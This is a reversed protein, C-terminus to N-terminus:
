LRYDMRWERPPRTLVAMDNAFYFRLPCLAYLMAYFLSFINVFEPNSNFLTEFIFPTEIFNLSQLHNKKNM